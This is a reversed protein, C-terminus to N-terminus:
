KLMIKKIKEKRLDVIIEQLLEPNEKFVNLLKYKTYPNLRINNNQNYYNDDNKYGILIRENEDHM